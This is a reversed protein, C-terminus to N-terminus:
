VLKVGLDKRAQVLWNRVTGETVKYKNAIERTTLNEYYYENILQKSMPMKRKTRREFVLQEM